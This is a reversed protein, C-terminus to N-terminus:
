LYSNLYACLCLAGFACLILSYALLSYAIAKKNKHAKAV